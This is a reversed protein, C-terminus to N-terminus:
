QGLKPAKASSLILEPGSPEQSEFVRIEDTASKYTILDDSFEAIFVRKEVNLLGDLLRVAFEMSEDKISQTWTIAIMLRTDEVAELDDFMRNSGDFMALDNSNFRTLKYANEGLRKVCNVTARRTQGKVPISLWTTNLPHEASDPELVVVGTPLVAGSLASACFLRHSQGRDGRNMGSKCLATSARLADPLRLKCENIFPEHTNLWATRDIIPTM